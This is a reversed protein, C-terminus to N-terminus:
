RMRELMHDYMAILAEYLMRISATEPSYDGLKKLEDLGRAGGNRRLNGMSDTEYPPDGKLLRKRIKIAEDRNM